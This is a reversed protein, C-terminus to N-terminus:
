ALMELADLTPDFKPECDRVYHELVQRQTGRIKGEFCMGLEEFFMSFALKPYDQIAKTIAETPPGWASAFSYTIVNDDEYVLEDEVDWKTGWHTVCWDYWLPTTGPEGSKAEYLGAPQPVLKALSLATKDGSVHDRFKQLEDPPGAVALTNDCWNPM